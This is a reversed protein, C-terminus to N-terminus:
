RSQQFHNVQGKEAHKPVVTLHLHSNIVILVKPELHSNYGNRLYFQIDYDDYFLIYVVCRCYEQENCITLPLVCM